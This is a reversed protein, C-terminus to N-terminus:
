MGKFSLSRLSFLLFTWLHGKTERLGLVARNKMIIRGSCGGAGGPTGHLSIQHIDSPLQEM